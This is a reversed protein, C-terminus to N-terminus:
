GAEILQPTTAELPHYRSRDDFPCLASALLPGFARPVTPRTTCRKECTSLHVHILIAGGRRIRETARWRPSSPTSRATQTDRRRLRRDDLRHVEGIVVVADDYTESGPWKTSMMEPVSTAKSTSSTSQSAWSAHLTSTRPRAVGKSSDSCWAIASTAGVGNTGEGPSMIKTTRRSTTVPRRNGRRCPWM